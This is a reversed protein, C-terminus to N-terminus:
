TRGLLAEIEDPVVGDGRLSRANRLMGQLSDLEDAADNPVHSKWSKGGATLRLIAYKSKKRVDVKVQWSPFTLSTRRFLGRSQVVLAHADVQLEVMVLGAVQSMWTRVWLGVITALWVLGFMSAVAMQFESPGDGVVWVLPAFLVGYVVFPLAVSVIMSVITSSGTRWRLTVSGMDHTQTMVGPVGAQVRVAGTLIALAVVESGGHTIAFIGIFLAEFGGQLFLHEIFAVGVSWAIIWVSLFLLQGLGMARKKNAM